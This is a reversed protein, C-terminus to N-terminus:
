IGAKEKIDDATGTPIEKAPHRPVQIYKGTIPSKWIDHKKGHRVFECGCKKLQKLLDSTKMFEFVKLNFVM